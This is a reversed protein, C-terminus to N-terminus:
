NSRGPNGFGGFGSGSGGYGGMIEALADYGKTSVFQSRVEGTIDAILAAAEQAVGSSLGAAKQLEVIFANVTDPNERSISDKAQQASELYVDLEAVLKKLLSTDVKIKKSM